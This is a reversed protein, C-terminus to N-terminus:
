SREFIQEIAERRWVVLPERFGEAATIRSNISHGRFALFWLLHNVFMIVISVAMQLLCQHAWKVLSSFKPVPLNPLKGLTEFSSVSGFRRLIQPSVQAKQGLFLKLM